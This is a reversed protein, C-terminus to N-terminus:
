SRERLVVIDQETLPDRDLLDLRLPLQMGYEKLLEIEDEQLPRQIWVRGTLPELLVQLEQWQEDDEPSEGPPADTLVFTAWPCTGDPQFVVAPRQEDSGEDEQQWPLALEDEQDQELQFSEGSLEELKPRGLKVEICRVGAAFTDRTWAARVPEFEGPADRPDPEFEVLPQLAEQEDVGAGSLENEAVFRIRYRLGDTMANARTLIILSRLNKASDVLRGRELRGLFNPVVMMALLGMLGIVVLLEILTVAGARGCPHDPRRGPVMHKTGM